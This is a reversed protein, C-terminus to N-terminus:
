PKPFNLRAYEGWIRKAAEDYAKAAERETEFRGLHEYKHNVMIQAKWKKKVANSTRDYYVGKFQSGKRSRGNANNEGSTVM